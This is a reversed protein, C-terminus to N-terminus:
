REDDLVRGVIRLPNSWGIANTKTMSAAVILAKWLTWAKGRLWTERDYSLAARFAKRSDASLSAWAIALDCAPDGVGINGFDIAGTLRGNRSLLNGVSLDGHIWVPARQWTTRMAAQWLEGARQGNIRSGLIRIADTTQGAYTSLAGGRHFNHPGPAPGGAADIRQLANLFHAIDAAFAKSDATATDGDLWRYISWKWPYDDSPQGLALPLPVPVPLKPAFIPLWHQEKEVQGAYAAASPLRAVM